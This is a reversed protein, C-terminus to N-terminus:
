SVATLRDGRQLALRDIAGPAFEFTAAAALCAAGRWPAVERCLKLVSGARDVFVVDIARGMALTHVSNCPAIQIAETAELPKRFLLGRAREYWTTTLMCRWGDLEAGNRQLHGSRM